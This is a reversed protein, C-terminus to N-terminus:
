QDKRTVPRPPSNWDGIISQICAMAALAATEARLIRPGLGIFLSFPLKRLTEIEGSSFGGEPGILLALLPAASTDLSGLVQAIP